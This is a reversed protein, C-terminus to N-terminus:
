RGVWGAVAPLEGGGFQRSVDSIAGLRHVGVTGVFLWQDAEPWEVLLWKGNPSWSLDELHGVGAFVRRSATVHGNRDLSAIELSTSGGVPDYTTYAIARGDPAFADTLFPNGKALSRSSIGSGQVGGATWVVLVGRSRVALLRGDPSWRLDQVQGGPATWLTRGNAADILRVTGGATVYALTFHGHWPQWAPAVPRAPGVAHDGTGDGAVVRLFGGSLYAVRTDTHTGGWRPFRIDRRGLVWHVNGSPDLAVLEDPRAAVVFRGYPSWSAERYSGLLRRSGNAEVVWAGRESNVLLRGPAPLSFLEKQAKKVGVAERIAHIVSRGPPSALVGAVAAAAGLAIAPRWYSRRKPAPRHSAFAAMAVRHAREEAGEPIQVDLKM